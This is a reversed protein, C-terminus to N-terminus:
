QSWVQLLINVYTLFQIKVTLNLLDRRRNLGLINPERKSDREHKIKHQGSYLTASHQAMEGDWPGYSVNLLNVIESNILFRFLDRPRIRSLM